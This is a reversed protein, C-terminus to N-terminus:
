LAGRRWSARRGEDPDGVVVYLLDADEVILTFGSSPTRPNHLFFLSVLPSGDSTRDLGSGDGVQWSCSSTVAARDDAASGGSM